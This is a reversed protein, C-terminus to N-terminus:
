RKVMIKVGSKKLDECHPARAPVQPASALTTLGLLISLVAFRTPPFFPRRM